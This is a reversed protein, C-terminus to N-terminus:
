FLDLNTKLPKPLSLVPKQTKNADVDDNVTKLLKQRKYHTQMHKQPSKPM